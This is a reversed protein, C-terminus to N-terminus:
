RWGRRSNSAVIVDEAPDDDSSDTVDPTIWGQAVREAWRAAEDFRDKIVADTGATPDYGRATMCALTGKAAAAGRVAVDWATLPLTYRRRLYGDLWDSAEDLAREVGSAVDASYVDALTLTGAFTLTLGTAISSSTGAVTVIGSSPVSVPSAYSTGGNTSVEVAAAGLAGGTSVRVRLDYIGAPYGGLALTAGSAGGTRTVVGFYPPVTRLAATPLGLAALDAAEAYRAATRRAIAM